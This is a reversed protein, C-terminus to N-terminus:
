RKLTLDILFHDSVSSAFFINGFINEISYMLKLIYNKEKFFNNLYSPPIAFGVGIKNILNFDKKFFSYFYKPNYYYTNVMSGNLRVHQTKKRRLIDSFRFKLLMYVSEIFCFDPMIVSVFRGSPMLVKKLNESLQKLENQNLCNLGGFNSFVIDFPHDFEFEALKNIDTKQIEIKESVGSMIIKNKAVELMKESIDTATVKHGKKALWIADEGTGCNLELINLTQGPLISDLYNWVRKRQMQGIETKLFNEDYSKAVSDFLASSM